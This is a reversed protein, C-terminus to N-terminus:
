KEKTLFVARRNSARCAESKDDCQPREKGYSILLLRGSEIGKGTLYEAAARARREGLAMNYESTGRDDCHGEILVLQAPNAKMWEVSADLVKTDRPRVVARDFDFRVDRLAAHARYEKPPAPPRAPAAPAPAPAVPAPAPAPAAPAPVPAPAPAPPPPAPAPAAVTPPPAQAAPVVPRKPCGSLLLALASFSAILAATRMTM